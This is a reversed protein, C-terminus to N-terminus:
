TEEGEGLVTNLQVLYQCCNERNVVKHIFLVSTVQTQLFFKWILYGCYNQNM